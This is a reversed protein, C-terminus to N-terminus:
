KLDKKSSLSIHSVWRTCMVKSAVEQHGEEHWTAKDTLEEKDKMLQDKEDQVLKRKVVEKSVQILEDFNQNVEQLDEKLVTNAKVM